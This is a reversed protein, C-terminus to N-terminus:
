VKHLPAGHDFRKDNAGVLEFMNLQEDPRWNILIIEKNDSKLNDLVM